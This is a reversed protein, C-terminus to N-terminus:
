LDYGFVLVFCVVWKPALFKLWLSAEDFSLIEFM